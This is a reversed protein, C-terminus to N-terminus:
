QSEFIEDEYGGRKLRIFNSIIIPDLNERGIVINWKMEIPHKHNVNEINVM